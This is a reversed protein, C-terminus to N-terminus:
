IRALDAEFAAVSVVHQCVRLVDGAKNVVFTAASGDRASTLGARERLHGTPDQLYLVTKGDARPTQAPALGGQSATASPATTSVALVSVDQRVAAVTEAILRECDCGDTIIVVMPRHALLPVAQGDAGILDLAPLTKAPTTTTDSTRQTAPQRPTGPWASAFLSAVTVLIAMSVILVPARLLLAGARRLRRVAPRRAFRQWRNPPPALHLEARVAEVEDSLESLDDPIVIVGWEEPLDPLDDSSGGDPPPWGGNDSAGAM